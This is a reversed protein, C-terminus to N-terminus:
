RITEGAGRSRALIPDSGLPNAGNKSRAFSRRFDKLALIQAILPANDWQANIADDVKFQDSARSTFARYLQERLARDKAYQMVPLYSPMHLSFLYGSSGKAKAKEAATTLVDAPIGAVRSEDVTVSWANMADLVNDSFKASLTSLTEAIAAFRARAPGKLEAGGLVFDRLENDLLKKQAATLTSFEKSQRIAKYKAYLAENQAVETFYATIKPLQEQHAARIEPSNMVANLNGVCSWSRSLARHAEQLPVVVNQWTPDVATASVRQLTERCQGLLSSIAPAVHEPRIASFAPFQQLSLLPNM